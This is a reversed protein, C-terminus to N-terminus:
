FSQELKQLRTRISGDYLDSGVKIRLGGILAPNRDFTIEVGAGYMKQLRSTIKAQLDTALPVASEIRATRREVDLEVLHSFRTLIEIYRRPKQALVETVALRVRTEDLLGDVQCSRFLERASRQAQKSIKM